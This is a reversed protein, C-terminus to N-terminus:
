FDSRYDKELDIELLWLFFSIKIPGCILQPSYKCNLLCQTACVLCACM